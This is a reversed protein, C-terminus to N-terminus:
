THLSDNERHGPITRILPYGQLWLSRDLSSKLSSGNQEKRNKM